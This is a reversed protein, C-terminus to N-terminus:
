RENAPATNIAFKTVGNQRLYDLLAIVEGHTTARDASVLVVPDVGSAILKLLRAGLAKREIKTGNLYWIGEKDIVVGMDRERVAEATKASPLEVKIASVLMAPATVMFIVLLVLMVDVMPTINIGTILEDNNNNNLAM